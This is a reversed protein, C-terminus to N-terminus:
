SSLGFWGACRGLCLHSVEYTNGEDNPLGMYRETYVSDAFLYTANDCLSQFNFATYQEHFTMIQTHQGITCACQGYYRWDTVPSQSIAAKYVGSATSGVMAGM